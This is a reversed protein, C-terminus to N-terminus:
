DALEDQADGPGKQAPEASGDGKSAAIIEAIKVLTATYKEAGPIKKLQKIMKAFKKLKAPANSAAAKEIKVKGEEDKGEIFLIVGETMEGCGKLPVKGCKEEVPSKFIVSVGGCATTLLPAAVLPMMLFFTRISRM